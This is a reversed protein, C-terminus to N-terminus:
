GRIGQSHSHTGVTIHASQCCPQAAGFRITHCHKQRSGCESALVWPQMAYPHTSASGASGTSAEAQQQCRASASRCKVEGMPSLGTCSSATPGQPLETGFPQELKSHLFHIDASLSNRFGPFGWSGQLPRCSSAPGHQSSNNEPRHMPTGQTGSGMAGSRGLLERHAAGREEAAGPRACGAGAAPGPESSARSVIDGHVFLLSRPLLAAKKKRRINPLSQEGLELDQTSCEPPPEPYM